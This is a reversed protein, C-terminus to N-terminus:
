RKIGKKFGCYIGNHSSGHFYPCKNCNGSDDEFSWSVLGGNKMPCYITRSHEILTGGEKLSTHQTNADFIKDKWVIEEGM